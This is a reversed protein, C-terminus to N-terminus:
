LAFECNIVKELENWPEVTKQRSVSMAVDVIEFKLFHGLIMVVHSPAECCYAHQSPWLSVQWCVNKTSSFFADAITFSPTPVM